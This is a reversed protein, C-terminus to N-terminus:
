ATPDFEDAKMTKLPRVRAAEDAFAERPQADGERMKDGLQRVYCDVVALAEERSLQSFPLGRLIGSPLDDEPSARVVTVPAGPSSRVKAPQRTQNFRKLAGSAFVHRAQNDWWSEAVRALARAAKHREAETRVM